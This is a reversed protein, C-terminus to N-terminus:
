NAAEDSTSVAEIKMAWESCFKCMDLSPHGFHLNFEKTFIDSFARRSIPEEASKVYEDVYLEHM